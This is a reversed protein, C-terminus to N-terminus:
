EVEPDLDPQGPQQPAAAAELQAEIDEVEEVALVEGAVAVVGRLAVLDLHTRGPDDGLVGARRPLELEADAIGELRTRLARGPRRAAPPPASRRSATIAGRRPIAPQPPPAGRSPAPGAPTRARGQASISRCARPWVTVRM